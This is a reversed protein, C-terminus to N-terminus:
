VHNLNRMDIHLSNEYAIQGGQSYRGGGISIPGTSSQTAQIIEEASRPAIVTSVAIPNLGTIDNIIKENLNFNLKESFSSQIIITSFVTIIFVFLLGTILARKVLKKTYQYFINIM